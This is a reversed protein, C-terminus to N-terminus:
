QTNSSHMYSGHRIKRHFETRMSEERARHRHGFQLFSADDVDSDASGLESDDVDDNEKTGTGATPISAHKLLDKEFDNPDLIKTDGSSPPSASVQLKAPPPSQTTTAPIGEEKLKDTDELKHLEFGELKQLEAHMAANTKKEADLEEQVKALKTKVSQLEVETKNNTQNSTPNQAKSSKVEKELADLRRLVEDQNDSEKQKKAHELAELRQTIDQIKTQENKVAGSQAQLQAAQGRLQNQLDGDSHRSAANQGAELATVRQALQELANHDMQEAGQARQADM